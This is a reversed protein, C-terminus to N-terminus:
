LISNPIVHSIRSLQKVKAEKWKVKAEKWKVKAEKWKAQSEEMKMKTPLSKPIPTQTKRDPSGQSILVDKIWPSPIKANLNWDM